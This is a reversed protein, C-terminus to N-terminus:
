ALSSCTCHARTTSPLLAPHPLAPPSSRPRASPTSKPSPGPPATPSSSTAPQMSRLAPPRPLGQLSRPRRLPMSRGERAHFECSPARAPIRSISTAPTQFRWQPPHTSARLPFRPSATLPAPIRFPSSRTRARTPSTCRAARLSPSGPRNPSLRRSPPQHRPARRSILSPAPPGTPSSLPAPPVSRSAMLRLLAPASRPRPAQTPLWAPVQARRLSKCPALLRRRPRCCWLAM